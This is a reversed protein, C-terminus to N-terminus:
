TLRALCFSAAGREWTRPTIHKALLSPLERATCAPPKPKESEDQDAEETADPPNTCVNQGYTINWDRQMGLTSGGTSHDALSVVSVDCGLRVRSTNHASAAACTSPKSCHIHEVSCCHGCSLGSM